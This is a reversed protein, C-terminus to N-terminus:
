RNSSSIALPAKRCRIPDFCIASIADVGCCQVTENSERRFTWTDLIKTKVFCHIIPGLATAPPDFQLQYSNINSSLSKFQSIM